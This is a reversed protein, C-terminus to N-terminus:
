RQGAAAVLPRTEGTARVVAEYPRLPRERTPFVHYEPAPEFAMGAARVDEEWRTWTQLVVEHGRAALAGGLAILPFAHGPDGFAGLLM